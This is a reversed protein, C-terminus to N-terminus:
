RNDWSRRCKQGVARATIDASGGPAFGVIVRIPKTPYSPGQAAPTSVGHFFCMLLAAFLLLDRRLDHMM